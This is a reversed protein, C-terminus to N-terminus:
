ETVKAGFIILGDVVIPMMIKLSILWWNITPRKIKRAYSISSPDNEDNFVLFVREVGAERFLKLYEERTAPTLSRNQMPVSIRYM